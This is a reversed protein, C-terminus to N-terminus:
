FLMQWKDSFVRLIIVGPCQACEKISLPPFTPLSFLYEQARDTLTCMPIVKIPISWFNTDVDKFKANM